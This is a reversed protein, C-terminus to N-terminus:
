RADNKRVEEGLSTVDTIVAGDDIFNGSAIVIIVLVTSIRFFKVM